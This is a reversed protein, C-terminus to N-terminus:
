EELKILRNYVSRRKTSVSEPDICDVLLKAYRKRCKSNLKYRNGFVTKSNHLSLAIDVERPSFSSILSRYDPLAARCVGYENGVACTIIAEVYEHQCSEPVAVQESLEKLRAAFPPENYFNNFAQHVSMLRSCAHSLITHQEATGLYKLLGVKEFFAQSAIQRDNQAAAIYDSHRNLLESRVAPTFNASCQQCLDLSNLRSEEASSPDCYIGHLTAFILERQADHTEVIRRCWETTQQSTFRDSKLSKILAVTDVGTPNATHSLAYKGCRKLFVIFEDDDITGMPPHASSFNNRTDRCQDLFFFADESILNLKLCLQLLETDKLDDLKDEDFDKGTLQEVVNLGFRRVKNRLEIVASNWVYNIAADFLGVAVAICMRAHQESRVEAPIIDLLRPLEGWAHAIESSSAVITRPVGLASTIQDLASSNSETVAPLLIQNSKSPLQPM